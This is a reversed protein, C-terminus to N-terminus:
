LALVGGLADLLLHELGEATLVIGLLALSRLEREVLELLLRDALADGDVLLAGVTTVGLLDALDRDLHADSRARVARREERATLRLRQRDDREAGRALLHAEVREAQLRLLEVEVVVVERRERVPLRTAEAARLAAVDAMAREGLTSEHRDHRRALVERVRNADHRVDELRVARRRHRRHTARAERQHLRAHRDLARHGTDCHAQDLLAVVVDHEGVDRADLVMETVHVELDGARLVADGRELHVDLDRADSEVDQAVREVLGLLSAREDQALHGLDDGLGGLLQRLVRRPDGRDLDVGVLDAHDDALAALRNAGQAVLELRLDVNGVVARDEHVRLAARQAVGEDLPDTRHGLLDLDAVLEVALDDLGRREAREDLQRLAGVAQQVDRVDLRTLASLRDLGHEVAAVLDVHAHDLDVALAAPDPQPEGLVGLDGPLGGLLQRRDARTVTAAAAAAPSAAATIAIATSAAPAVAATTAATSAVTAVAAVPRAGIVGAVLALVRALNAPVSCWSVSSSEPTRTTVSATGETREIASPMNTPVPDLFSAGAWAPTECKRSCRSNLPVSRNLETSISWIKSPM